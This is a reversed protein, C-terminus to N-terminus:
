DLLATKKILFATREKRRDIIRHSKSGLLDVGSSRRDPTFMSTMFSTLLGKPVRKRHKKIGLTVISDGPAYLYPVSAYAACASESIRLLLDAGRGDAAEITIEV